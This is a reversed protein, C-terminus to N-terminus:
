DCHICADFESPIDGVSDFLDRTANGDRYNKFFSLDIVLPTPNKYLNTKEDTIRLVNKTFNLRYYAQIVGVVLTYIEKMAHNGYKDSTIATNLKSLKMISKQAEDVHDKFADSEDYYYEVYRSQYLYMADKVIRMGEFSKEDGEVRRFIYKQRLDVLPFIYDKCNVNLIKYFDMSSVGYETQPIRSLLSAVKPHNLVYHTYNVNSIKLNDPVIFYEDKYRGDGVPRDKSNRLARVDKSTLQKGFFPETLFSMEDRLFVIWMILKYVDYMFNNEPGIGIHELGEYSIIKGDISIRSMGYDIIKPIYRSTVYYESIPFSYSRSNEEIIINGPHLDYHTFGTAENIVFLNYLLVAIVELIDTETVKKDQLWVTMSRGYIRQSVIVGPESVTCFSVSENRDNTIIRSCNIYSYAQQFIPLNFTNLYRNILYERLLDKRLEQKAGNFRDLKKYNITNTQTIKIYKLDTDVNSKIVFGEENIFHAGFVQGYVGKGLFMNVNFLNGYLESPSLNSFLGLSQSTMLFLMRVCEHLQYSSSNNKLTNSLTRGAVGFLNYLFITAEKKNNIIVPEMNKRIDTLIATDGM